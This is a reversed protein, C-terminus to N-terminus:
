GNAFARDSTSTLGCTEPAQSGAMPAFGAARIIGANSCLASGAGVFMNVLNPDASAGVVQSTIFVNYLERFIPFTTTNMATGAANFPSILVAPSAGNSVTNLVAGDRIDASGGSNKQFIWQGVSYPFIGNPDDAVAVGNNEELLVHFTATSPDQGQDFVCAPLSSHQGTFTDLWFNRSGSGTQPVYLDITVAGVPDPNPSGLPWYTVGGETVTDCNKYLNTLDTFTFDGATTILSSPGTSVAVDDYAYPIWQYEGTQSLNASGAVSTASGSPRSFAVAGVHPMEAATGSDYPSLGSAGNSFRLAALGDSSGNPRLFSQLTQSSGSNQFANIIAPPTSTAVAGTVPDVADYSGVLGGTTTAFADMLNQTTNSGVAMYTVGPDALAPGAMALGLGALGAAAGVAMLAKVRVSQRGFWAPKISGLVM